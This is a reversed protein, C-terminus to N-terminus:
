PLSCTLHKSIKNWIYECFRFTVWNKVRTLSKDEIQWSFQILIKILIFPNLKTVTHSWTINTHFSVMGLTHVSVWHLNQSFIHRGSCFIRYLVFHVIIWWALYCRYFTHYETISHGIVEMNLRGFTRIIYWCM